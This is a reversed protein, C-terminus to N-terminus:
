IIIIIIRIPIPIILATHLNPPALAAVVKLDKRKSWRLELEKSYNRRNEKMNRTEELNKRDLNKRGNKEKKREVNLV